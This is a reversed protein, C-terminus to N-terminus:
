DWPLQYSPTRCFREMGLKVEVLAGPGLEFEVYEGGIEEEAADGNDDTYSATTFRHEAFAGAQVILRRSEMPHLNALTLDISERDIRSVLAAVDPPLGPRRRDADFHRVSVMLLGGNYIAMPGGMTLHILAETTITSRGILYTQFYSHTVSDSWKRQKMQNVQRAVEAVQQYAEESNPRYGWGTGAERLEGRLKKLQGFVQAMSHLLVEVPYDPYGGELFNLYAHDQGGFHKGHVASASVRDGTNSTQDRM